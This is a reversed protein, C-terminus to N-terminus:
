LPPLTSYIKTTDIGEKANKHQQWVYFIFGIGYIIAMITAMTYDFEMISFAAVFFGTVVTLLGMITM